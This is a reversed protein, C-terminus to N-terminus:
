LVRYRIAYIDNPQTAHDPTNAIKDVLHWPGFQATKSPQAPLRLKFLRQADGPLSLVVFRDATQYKLAVKGKLVVRGDLTPSLQEDLSALTQNRDTHLEVQAERQLKSATAPLRIEFEVAPAAAIGLHAFAASRLNVGAAAAVGIMVAVAASRIAIERASRFGGKTYLTIATAAFFGILAGAPGALQMAPSAGGAGATAALAAAFGLVAGLAGTLITIVYLM